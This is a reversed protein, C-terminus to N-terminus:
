KIPVYIDTEWKATDKEMGPDTVYVEWPNGNPSKGNNGIWKFAAEYASHTKEYSGFYKVVAVDGSYSNKATIRGDSKGLKDTPIAAEWIYKAGDMKVMIGFPAGAMKLNHKAMYEGIEHYMMGYKQGIENTNSMDASDLITLCPTSPVSSTEITYVVEPIGPVLAAASDLNKLGSEFIPGLMKDVLFFGFLRKLPNMGADSDMNWTLKTKQDADELAFSVVSNGSGMFNMKTEIFTFPTSKTIKINGTGVNSNESIWSYYAGVGESTDGYTIKATTDMQYWPLWLQWKKLDNILSYVTEPKSNIVMSREVHVKSPLFFSIVLLLVVMGLLGLGIFKLTRM